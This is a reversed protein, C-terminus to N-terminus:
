KLYSLFLSTTDDAHDKDTMITCVYFLEPEGYRERLITCYMDADEQFKFRAYPLRRHEDGKEYVEYHLM